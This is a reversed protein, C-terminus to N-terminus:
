TISRCLCERMPEFLPEDTQCVKCLSPAIADARRLGSHAGQAGRRRLLSKRVQCLAFWVSRWGATRPRSRGPHVCPLRISRAAPRPAACLRGVADHVLVGAAWCGDEAAPAFGHSRAAAHEVTALLSMLERGLVAAAAPMMGQARAQHGDCRATCRLGRGADCEPQPVCCIGPWRCSM